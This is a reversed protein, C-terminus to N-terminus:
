YVCALNVDMGSDGNHEIEKNNLAQMHCADVQNKNRPDMSLKERTKVM